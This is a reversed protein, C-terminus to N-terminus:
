IISFYYHSTKNRSRSSEILTRTGCNSFEGKNKEIVKMLSIPCRLRLAHRGGYELDCSRSSEAFAHFIM